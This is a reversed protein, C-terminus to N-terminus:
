GAILVSDFRHYENLITYLQTAADSDLERDFTTNNLRLLGRQGYQLLITVNEGNQQQFELSYAETFGREVDFAKRYRLGGLMDVITKCDQDRLSVVDNCVNGDRDFYQYHYYCDDVGNLAVRKTSLLNCIIFVSSMIVVSLLVIPVVKKM